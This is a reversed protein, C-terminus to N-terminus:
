NYDPTMNIMNSMKRYIEPSIKKQKPNRYYSMYLEIKSSFRIISTFCRKWKKEIFKQDDEYTTGDDHQVNRNEYFNSDFKYRAISDRIATWDSLLYSNSVLFSNSLQSELLNDIDNLLEFKQNVQWLSLKNQSYKETSWVIQKLKLNVFYFAAEDSKNKEKSSVYLRNQEIRLFELQSNLESIVRDTKNLLRSFHLLDISTSDQKKSIDLQAQSMAEMRYNAQYGIYGYIFAIVIGFISLINSTSFLPHRLFNRSEIVNEQRNAQEEM